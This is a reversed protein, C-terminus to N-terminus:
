EHQAAFGVYASPVQRQQPPLQRCVTSEYRFGKSPPSEAHTLIVPYSLMSHRLASLLFPLSPPPLFSPSFCHRKALRFVDVKLFPPFLLTLLLLFSPPSSLPFSSFPLLTVVHSSFRFRFAALVSLLLCYYLIPFSSALICLLLFLSPPAFSRSSHMGCVLVLEGLCSCVGGHFM